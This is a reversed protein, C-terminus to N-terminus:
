LTIMMFNKMMNNVMDNAPISIESDLFVLLLGMQSIQLYRTLSISSCSSSPAVWSSMIAATYFIQPGKSEIVWPAVWAHSNIISVWNGSIMSKITLLWNSGWATHWEKPNHGM